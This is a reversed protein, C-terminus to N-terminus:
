CESNTQYLSVHVNSFKKLIRFGSKSFLKNMHAETRCFGCFSLKRKRLFSSLIIKCHTLLYKLNLRLAPIFIIYQIGFTKFKILLDKFADDDFETDVRSLLLISSPSLGLDNLDSNVLHIVNTFIDFQRIRNITPSNDSVTIGLMPMRQLIFYELFCRGSGFSIMHTAKLSNLIKVINAVLSKKDNLENNALNLYEKKENPLYYPLHHKSERLSTWNIKESYGDLFVLHKIKM